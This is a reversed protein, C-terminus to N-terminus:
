EVILNANNIVALLERTVMERLEASNQKMNTSNFNINEVLKTVNITINKPRGSSVASVESKGRDAGAPTLGGPPTVAGAGATTSSESGGAQDAVEQADARLFNFGEDFGTSFASGIKSGSQRLQNVGKTIMGADLTLVGAILNGLGGFANFAEEKIAQFGRKMSRVMGTMLKPILLFIKVPLTLAFGLANVVKQMREIENTGQFLPGLLQTLAEWAFGLLRGFEAFPETWATFDLKPIMDIISIVLNAFSKLHPLMREGLQIGLLQLKGQITSVLGGFTQSQKQMLNFFVGGESTMNEFAQTMIKDTVKGQSVMKKLSAVSDVGMIKQLETWIPVARDALQNIQELDARQQVQIRGFIRALENFDSGTGAAVDGVKTLTPIINEATTGYSLLTQGAKLVQQNDFPTVNAFENMRAIADNAKETSGLMTEMTVRTQEMQKGLDVSARIAAGAGVVAATGVAAFAGALLGVKGLMGKGRGGKPGVKGEGIRGELRDMRQDFKKFAASFEDQLRLAYTAREDAM